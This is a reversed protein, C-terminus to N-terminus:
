HDTKQDEDLWSQILREIERLAEYADPGEIRIRLKSGQSAGLMMLGLISRGNVHTSDKEVWVDARFRNTVQAFLAAPRAHLGLRNVIAIEKEAKKAGPRPSHNSELKQKQPWARAEDATLAADDVTLDDV